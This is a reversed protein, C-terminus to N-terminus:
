ELERLNSNQVEAIVEDYNLLIHKLPEKNLKVVSSSLPAPPVQLFDLIPNFASEPDSFLEEYYVELCDEKSLRERYKRVIAQREQMKRIVFAPDLALRIQELETESNYVKTRRSIEKSVVCQLANKRILHIFKTKTKSLVSLSGRRKEAQYYHTKFGVARYAAGAEYLQSIYEQVSREPWIWSLVKQRLSHNEFGLYTLPFDTSYPRSFTPYKLHLAEGFCLIDPHSHLMLQVWTSGSRETTLIVFQVGM